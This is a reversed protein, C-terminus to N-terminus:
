TRAKAKVQLDKEGTLALVPCKVKKLVPAPDHKLFWRMWPRVASGRHARAGKELEKATKEEDKVTEAFKKIAETMKEKAEDTTKAAKCRWSCSTSSNRREGQDGRGVRRPTQLLGEDARRPSARRCIGPGALLIIFRWTTPISAAGGAARGGRGRQPRLHRDAEPRDEQAGEPVEGGAYADTAFDATTAGAFKGGSKGVGRDDYRLCAIGTAPWTTPSSSSRSTISSPRTATRRGRGRCWCWPPSRATAKRCRSRAPWTSRRPRTRSTSTRPRLLPVAGQADAPPQDLADQRDTGADDPPNRRGARVRGRDGQEKRRADGQLDRRILPMDITLKRDAFTVSKCPVEIGEQDVSIMKGKLEGEKDEKEIQFVLRLHMPGVKLVGLWLGTVDPEAPKPKEEAVAALAFAVLCVVSLVTRRM